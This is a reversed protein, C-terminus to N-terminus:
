VVLYKKKPKIKKDKKNKKSSKSIKKSTKKKKNETPRSTKKKKKNETPRSTKSNYKPQKKKKPPINEEDSNDIIGDVEDIAENDEIIGEIDDNADSDDDDTGRINNKIKTQRKKDKKKDKRKDKRKEVIEDDNNKNDDSDSEIYEEEDIEPPQTIMWLENEDEPKFPNASMKTINNECNNVLYIIKLPIKRGFRNARGIVQIELEPIMRHYLILYDAAQLNLGSGYHQSDLLLINTTGAYFEDIVKTIHAPIGSLLAYELGAKAINKVIKDFTQAYDSFILIKPSKENKAIHGLIKELVDSKDMSKFPKEIKKKKKKDVVKKKQPKAAIVHYEKNNKIVHRCYPCKNQSSKLASLLCKLCFVSKCCDLITPSEYAEACIFCCEDKISNIRENITELKTNCRAIETELKEIKKDHADKDAPIQKRAAELDVTLNHLQTNIKDTLVKVINEETDIDCNLKAVAERMNGSNILQLVDQPILDQIASVVKQLLTTIVYVHPKPLVVSKDVYEDKNKVIFYQLLNKNFGFIKNVYRRCSKYFISTPTATLFWNFNGFEDFMPPIHASDMEDIVVRAWKTSRFIQKFFKYRNINLVFADYKELNERIKKANLVKREFLKDPMRIKKSKSGTKKMVFKLKGKEFLKEIKSQTCKNYITFPGEPVIIQELVYDIDFFIDFDTITNLKLYRLKSKEMFTGWQYALNHPVVVLNVNESEGDTLMKISFHDSGLIFRDHSQPVLKDLILGIVCFTKGSGVRDALIASNTELVFTSNEFEGINRLKMQVSQYLPSAIDPRDIVTSGQKELERMAAIVTLQHPRLKVKLGKPHKITPSNEDLDYYSM